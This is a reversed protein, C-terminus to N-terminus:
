RQGRRDSAEKLADNRKKNYENIDTVVARREMPTMDLVDSYTTNINRSIYAAERIIENYMWPGFPKGESNFRPNTFVQNM